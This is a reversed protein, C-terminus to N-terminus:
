GSHTSSKTPIRLPGPDIEFHAYERYELSDSGFVDRVIRQIHLEVARTKGDNWHVGDARLQQIDTIRLRLRRIDRDIEGPTAQRAEGM